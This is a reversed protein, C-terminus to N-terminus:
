MRDMAELALWLARIARRLYSAYTVDPKSARTSTKTSADPPYVRSM